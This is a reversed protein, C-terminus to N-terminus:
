YNFLFDMKNLLVWQLSEAAVRVRKAQFMPLFLRNRRDTPNRSLTNQYLMRIITAPDTTQALISAVRSGANNQHIRTMVFANNMM